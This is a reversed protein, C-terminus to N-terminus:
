WGRFHKLFARDLDPIASLLRDSLQGPPVNNRIDRLYQILVTRAEPPGHLMFHVWAWAARYESDGMDRVDGLDELKTLSAVRYFRAAWRTPSHHPNGHERDDAPVEYYEALGEDLWLPVMPLRSHLLAHTSEHRVDVEFQRNVYVFVWGPQSGKIFLARRAPAGHFYIDLYHQYSPQDAFLLLHVPENKSEVQLRSTLDRDLRDLEPVLNPFKELPFNARIQFDGAQRSDVWDAARTTPCFAVLLICLARRFFPRFPPGGQWVRRVFASRFTHLACVVFLCRVVALPRM